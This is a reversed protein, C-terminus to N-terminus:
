KESQGFEVTEEEGNGPDRVFKRVKGGEIYVRITPWKGGSEKSQEPEGYHLGLMLWPHECGEVAGMPYDSMTNLSLTSIQPDDILSLIEVPIVVTTQRYSIQLEELAGSTRSQRAEVRVLVNCSDIWSEFHVKEPPAFVQHTALVDNAFVCLLFTVVYRM